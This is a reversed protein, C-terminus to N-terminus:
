IDKGKAKFWLEELTDENTKIIESSLDDGQLKLTGTRSKHYQPTLERDIYAQLGSVNTRYNM